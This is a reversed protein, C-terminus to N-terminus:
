DRSRTCAFGCATTELGPVPNRPVCRIEDHGDYEYPFYVWKRTWVTFPVDNADGGTGFKSIEAAEIDIISEGNVSLAIDLRHDWEKEWPVKYDHFDNCVSCYHKDKNAAYREATKDTM